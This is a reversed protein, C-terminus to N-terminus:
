DNNPVKIGKTLTVRLVRGEDVVLSEPHMIGNADCVRWFAKSDKFIGHAVLDPRESGKVEYGGTQSFDESHPIFRRKIYQIDRGHSDQTEATEISYYRSDSSFPTQSM